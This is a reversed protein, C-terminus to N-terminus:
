QNGGSFESWGDHSQMFVASLGINKSNKLSDFARRRAGGTASAEKNTNVFINYGLIRAKNDFLIIGDSNLMGSILFCKNEIESQSIIGKDFNEFLEVFDIPEEFVIGDNSLAKPVRNMHTVVIICGHSEILSEHLIRKLYRIVNERFNNKVKSTIAEVLDDLNKLPPPIDDKQHDLFIFHSGGNNSKIEICNNAVQSVKVINADENQTMIGDDVLMSTPKGSRIFLGYDIRESTESIYILWGGKALPSCKKLSCTIWDSDKKVYGIKLSEAGPIMNLMEEINDTLYVCPFLRSGEEYHNAVRIILNALTAPNRLLKLKSNQCFDNVSGSLHSRFTINSPM